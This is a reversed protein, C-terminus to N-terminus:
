REMQLSSFITKLSLYDYTISISSFDVIFNNKLEIYKKPEYYIKPLTNVPNLGHFKEWNLITNGLINYYSIEPTDGANWSGEKRGSIYPNM